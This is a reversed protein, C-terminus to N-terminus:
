ENQMGEDGDGDKAGNETKMEDQVDKAGNETKMEAQVDRNQKEEKRRRKSEVKEEYETKRTEANRFRADSTLLEAFRARCAPTHTQRGLGRFWSSCGPCGRTYGHKEADEKRIQFARPPPQKMKVVTRPEQVAQEDVPKAEVAQDEPIEGDAEPQDKYRNWPVHRVWALSDPSWRLERVIRRAARAKVVGAATAVWLEGSRPRAGVFIGYEYKPNLKDMKSGAKKRWLLKEGFEVGLLTAAKGKVREYPTKGDKGVELRNMMYAGYEAMFTVICSDAKVELGIRDELALKMVRIQGEVAQVAREVVGNSGSSGVPSEEVITRCGKEDGRELVIDKVLYKIAAEQDTKVIVDGSQCGCEAMFEMVKDAAFKGTSGKDPLVTAMTMGTLRERGVLVTLKYGFENGPFAYDFSFEPLIREGNEAKRHDADKGKARVCHPCWNRYPLHTINHQEVEKETPRMPDLIKKLVKEKEREPRIREGEVGQMEAEEEEGESSREDEEPRLAMVERSMM